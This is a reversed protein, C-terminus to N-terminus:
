IRKKPNKRNKVRPYGKMKGKGRLQLMSSVGENISSVILSVACYCSIMGIAVELVTSNFM